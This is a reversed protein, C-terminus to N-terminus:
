GYARAARDVALGLDRTLGEIAAKSAALGGPCGATTSGLVSGINVIASGPEHRARM